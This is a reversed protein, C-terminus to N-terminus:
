FAFSKKGIIRKKFREKVESMVDFTMKKNIEVAKSSIPFNFKKNLIQKSAAEAFLPDKKNFM